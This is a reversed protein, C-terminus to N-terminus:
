SGDPVYCVDYAVCLSPSDNIRNEFQNYALTMGMLIMGSSTGVAVEFYQVGSEGDTASWSAKIGSLDSQEVYGAIVEENESSFAGVKM